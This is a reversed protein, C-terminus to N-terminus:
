VASPTAVLAERAELAADEGFYNLVVFHTLDDLLSEARGAEDLTILRRVAEEIAGLM